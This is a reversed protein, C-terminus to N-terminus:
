LTILNFVNKGQVTDQPIGNKLILFSTFVRFSGFFLLLKRSITNERFFVAENTNSIERSVLLMQSHINRKYEVTLVYHIM